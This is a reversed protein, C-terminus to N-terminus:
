CQTVFKSPKFNIEFVKKFFCNQLQLKSKYHQFHPIIQLSGKLPCRAVAFADQRTHILKIEHFIPNNAIFGYPSVKCSCFGDHKAHIKKKWSGFSLLSGKTEHFFGLVKHMAKKNRLSLSEFGRYAKSRYVSELRAGEVM